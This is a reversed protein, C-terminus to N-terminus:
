RKTKPPAKKQPLPAPKKPPPPPTPADMCCRFGTSYDHYSPEHAYTVYYCGPGLQSNTSYFGGLFIGNGTRWHQEKREVKDKELSDVFKQTVMGNVWEHLNGVMDYIKEDNACGSHAGAKALFDEKQNLLPSNFHKDYEWKRSDAGFLQSLLHDKGSSCVGPKERGGYPYRWWHKGQCARRWENFTCLRKGAAKCARESENRSVYGQPFVGAASRALYHVGDEPRQYHPHVTFSGDSKQTVL